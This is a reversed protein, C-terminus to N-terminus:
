KLLKIHSFLETNKTEGIGSTYEIWGRRGNGDNDNILYSFAIEQGAKPQQGPNLLTTWPIRAEYYTKTGKNVVAFDLDLLEGNPIVNDQSLWRWAQPGKETLALGIEHYTASAQGIALFGEDGYYVGIQIDDGNWQNEDAPAPTFVSDTVEIGVYLNEEDWMLMCSGSVDNTGGWDKIQRIQDPKDAHMATNSDWEGYDFSGDIVPKKDAYVALSLDFNGVCPYRGGDETVIDYSLAYQGKKYVRGLGFEVLGTSNAPIIGIDVNQLKSSIDNDKFEIHGKLAKNSSINTIDVIGNWSNYDDGNMSVKLATVVPVTSTVTYMKSFVTKEGDKVRLSMEYKEGMEANNKIKIEAKGDKFSGVDVIEGESSADIEVKLDKDTNKDLSITYTDGVPADINMNGAEVLVSDSAKMDGVDGMIYIPEGSLNFTFIGDNGYLESRNGNSDYVDVKDTNIEFAVTRENDDACYMAAIKTNFKQSDYTFVNVNEDGSEVVKDPTSEAILYNLGAIMLYAETPFYMTGWMKCDTFPPSVHGFNDERDTKVMGKQEFNYLVTLNSINNIKYLLTARSNYMGKVQETGISLDTSTYGTETNWMEVDPKGVKAFENRYYKMDEIMGASEASNQTYPHLVCADVYKWMGNKMCDDFYGKGATSWTASVMIGTISPGGLLSGPDIKDIEERAIRCLETYVDGQCKDLYKNFSTINPENWIEYRDCVDKIKETWSIVNSRWGAFGAETYPMEKQADSAAPNIMASTPIGYYVPLYKLNNEAIIPAIEDTMRDNITQRVGAVNSKAMVEFFEPLVKSDRWDPHAAFFVEDNNIGDPDTKIIAFKTPMQSFSTGDSMKVDAILKYIDCYDMDGFNLKLEATEDKPISVKEIKEGKVLGTETVATFTIEADADAGSYNHVTTNIIKDKKFWEFMNGSEDIKTSIYLKNENPRRTVKVRKIAISESSIPNFSSRAKISLTFDYKGNYGENFDANTLTFKQTKWTGTTETYIQNQWERDGDTNNYYLFCYGKGSDFYDIEIDYVSGDFSEAKMKDSLVFNITSKEDGQLKDMLWCNEGDRSAVLPTKNTGPEVVKFGAATPSESDLIVEAINPDNTQQTPAKAESIRPCISLAMVFACIMATFKKVAM